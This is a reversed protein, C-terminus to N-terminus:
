KNKSVKKVILCDELAAITSTALPPGQLSILIDPATGGVLRPKRNEQTAIVVSAYNFLAVPGIDNGAVRDPAKARVYYQQEKM